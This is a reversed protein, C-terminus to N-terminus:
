VGVPHLGRSVEGAGEHIVDSLLTCGGLEDAISSLNLNAFTDLFNQMSEKNSCPLTLCVLLVLIKGFARILVDLLHDVNYEVM